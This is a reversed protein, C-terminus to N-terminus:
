KFKQKNIAQKTYLNCNSQGRQLITQSEQVKQVDENTTPDLYLVNKDTVEPTEEVALHRSIINGIEQLVRAVPLIYRTEKKRERKKSM